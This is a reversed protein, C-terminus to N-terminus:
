PFIIHPEVSSLPFAAWVNIIMKGQQNGVATFVPSLVPIKLLMEHEWYIEVLILGQSPLYDRRVNTDLDYNSLNMMTEVQQVTWSSGTCFTGPIKHNGFLSFGVQKEADAASGTVREDYGAIETFTGVVESPIAPNPIDPPAIDRKGNGNIDFPDRNESGTGYSLSPVDDALQAATPNTDDGDNGFPDTKLVDCENANTPYRGAVVSQPKSTDFNSALWTPHATADVQQLAFGSVIIDDIGNAKNLVLPDLTTIMTCIVENYFVRDVYQPDCAEIGHDGTSLGTV